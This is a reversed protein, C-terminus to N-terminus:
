VSTGSLGLSLEMRSYVEEHSLSTKTLWVRLLVSAEYTAEQTAQRHEPSVTSDLHLASPSLCNLTGRRDRTHYM